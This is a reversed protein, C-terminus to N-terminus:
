LGSLPTYAGFPSVFEFRGHLSTSCSRPLILCLRTDQDLCSSHSLSSFSSVSVLLFLCLRSPPSLSSFFSVSLSVNIFINTRLIRFALKIDNRFKQVWTLMAYLSVFLFRVTYAAFYQDIRIKETQTGSSSTSGEEDM